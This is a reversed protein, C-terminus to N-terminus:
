IRYTFSLSFTRGTRFALWNYQGPDGFDYTKRDLPNLLNFARFGCAFHEGVTQSFTLDLSPFPQQYIDPM